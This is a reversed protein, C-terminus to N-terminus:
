TVFSLSNSTTIKRTKGGCKTYKPPPYREGFVSEAPAQLKAPLHSRAASLIDKAAGCISRVAVAFDPAAGLMLLTAFRCFCCCCVYEGAAQPTISVPVWLLARGFAWTTQGTGGAVQWRGGQEQEQKQQQQAQWKASAAQLLLKLSKASKALPNIAHEPDLFRSTLVTLQSGALPYGKAHRFNWKQLLRVYSIFEAIGSATCCCFPLSSPGHTRTWYLTFICFM